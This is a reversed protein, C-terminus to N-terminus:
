TKMAVEIYEIASNFAIPQLSDFWQAGEERRLWTLQRKALQRTAITAREVMTSYSFEGSLYDWVQRYGVSRISPLEERFRRQYLAEVERILGRELMQNFRTDIRRRM